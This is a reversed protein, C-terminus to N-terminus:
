GKGKPKPVARGGRKLGLRDRAEEAPSGEPLRGRVMPAAAAPAMPPMKASVARRAPMAVPAAPPAPRKSPPRM